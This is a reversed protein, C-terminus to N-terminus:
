ADIPAAHWGYLAFMTGQKWQFPDESDANNIRLVAFWKDADVVILRPLGVSSFFAAMIASAIEKVPPTGKLLKAMAFGKTCDLMTLVNINGWKDSMDGPSWFDLFVVDFPVDCALTNTNLQQQADHSTANALNPAVGSGKQSMACWALGGFVLSSACFHALSAAKAVLLTLRSL